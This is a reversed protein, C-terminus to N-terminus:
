EEEIGRINKNYKVIMEYVSEKNKANMLNVLMEECEDNLEPKENLIDDNFIAMAYCAATKIEALRIGDNEQCSSFVDASGLHAPDGGKVKVNFAKRVFNEYTMSMKTEDMKGKGGNMKRKYNTIAFM